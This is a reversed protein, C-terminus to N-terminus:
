LACELQSIKESITPLLETFGRRKYNRQLFRSAKGLDSYMNQLLNATFNRGFVNDVLIHSRLIFFVVNEDDQFQPIIQGLIKKLARTSRQIKAMHEHLPVFGKKSRNHLNHTIDAMHLSILWCKHADKELIDSEKDNQQFFASYNKLKTFHGSEQHWSFIRMYEHSSGSLRNLSNLIQSLLQQHIYQNLIQLEEHASLFESLIFQILLGQDHQIPSHM